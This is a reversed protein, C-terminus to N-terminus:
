CLAQQPYSRLRAFAIVKAALLIMFLIAIELNNDTPIMSALASSLSGFMLMLCGQLSAAVGARDPFLSMSVALVNSFIFGQGFAILMVGGLATWLTLTLPTSLILVIGIAVHMFGLKILLNSAMKRILIRNFLTGALYGLGVVLATTGFFSASFGLQQQVIFSGIVNWLLFASFSAGLIIVVAVFRGDTVIGKYAGIIEGIRRANQTKLSEKLGFYVFTLVTIGYCAYVVFNYRWGAYEEIIGGIYPAVVPGLGFALSLYIVAVKFRDGKIKDVLIARAVVQCSGIAFGQIARAVLLMYINTSFIALVSGGIFLILGFLISPRRGKSDAMIGFFLQGLAYFILTITITNQMYSTTVGFERGISPMSPAYLDIAIGAVSNILPALFVIVDEERTAKVM